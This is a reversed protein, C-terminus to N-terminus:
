KLAEAVREIVHSAVAIAGEYIKIANDGFNSASGVGPVQDGTNQPTCQGEAGRIFGLEQENLLRM